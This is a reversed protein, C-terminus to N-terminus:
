LIVTVKVKGPTYLLHDCFYCEEEETMSLERTEFYSVM